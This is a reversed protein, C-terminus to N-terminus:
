RYRELFSFLLYVIHRCLFVGLFILDLLFLYFPQLCQAARQLVVGRLKDYAQQAHHHCKIHHEGETGKHEISPGVLTRQLRSGCYLLELSHGIFRGIHHLVASALSAREYELPPMEGNDIKLSQEWFEPLIKKYPKNQNGYYCVGPIEAPFGKKRWNRLTKSGYIADIRFGNVKLNGTYFECVEAMYKKWRPDNFDASWGDLVNGSETFSMMSVSQNRMLFGLQGGGHPVIDQLVRINNKQLTLNASRYDDWTGIKPEIIKDLM